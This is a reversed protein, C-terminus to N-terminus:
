LTKDVVLKCKKMYEDIQVSSGVIKAFNFDSARVRLDDISHPIPLSARHGDVSVLTRKDVFSSGYKVNYDIAVADNDPHETAWPQNFKINPDYDAQEINLNLDNKYTFSGSEVDVIWDDQSSTALIQQVETFKM